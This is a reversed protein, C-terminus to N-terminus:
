LHESTTDLRGIVGATVGPVTGGVYKAYGLQLASASVSLLLLFCIQFFGEDQEAELTALPLM